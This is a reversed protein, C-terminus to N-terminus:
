LIIVVKKDVAESLFVEVDERIEDPTANYIECLQTLIMDMDSPEELINLIDLGTEDFFHTDGTTPNFVALSNEDTQIYEVENSKQYIVITGEKRFAIREYLKYVDTQKTLEINYKCKRFAHNVAYSLSILRQSCMSIQEGNIAVVKGIIQEIQIDELRFSNDGKCYYKKDRKDLLRHVLLEGEKYIFVLIDGIQYDSQPNITILDNEYLVPNMSMGIVTIEFPKNKQRQIKLLKDLLGNDLTEVKRKLKILM